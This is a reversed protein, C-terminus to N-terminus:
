NATRVTVNGESSHASVAHASRGDRPVSVSVAGDDAGTRLHYAARPLAVTVDGDDSDADVRDPVASLELHVSGESSTTRVRRSSAEARVSGDDSDLNLPGDSDTVHVDGESTTVALPDTFGHARVDGNANDVKVSIGRPVEIRHRASCDAVFGSCHVRLVLRDDNFSWSVKPGSGVMVSGQFWRTVEVTGAKNGKAAVVELESNDSDVTLTRGHLAFSRHDPHKDDGASAGCGSVGAVLAGVLLGAAVPRVPVPLTM